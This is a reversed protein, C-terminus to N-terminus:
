QKHQPCIVDKAADVIANGLVPGYFSVGDDRVEQEPWGTGLIRCVEVGYGVWFQPNERKLCEKDKGEPMLELLRKFYQSVIKPEVDSYPLTQTSNGQGAQNEAFVSTALFSILLCIFIQVHAFKRNM